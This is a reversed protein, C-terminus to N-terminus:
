RSIATGRKGQRATKIVQRAALAGARGDLGTGPHTGTSCLFLNEIPTLYSAWGLIPRASWLQDLGLEGHFIHGGTLGYTRELDLPTVIQQAVISRDFGPAYRTITATAIDALHAREADWTTDRLCSPAFQVYASVVHQDAPALSRDLISPIALEIWPEDAFSGYKAADFAREIADMDPGLRVWGSLAANREDQDLSSVGVFRPLSSVAYNIKALSGRMRINRIARVFEPALNAPDVLGILTRRPDANSVIWQATLQEGTALVVGTAVGDKVVIHHVEAGVRIEAGARRAASALAESVAGIGGRATWGPAIPHGEGAGLWLLSATSGGSRPGLLSGLTGGAAVTACLPESEFWERAFDAAPMPLWRLLRYADANNLARFKRLTRILDFAGALSLHDASPPPTAAVSRLVGSVAAVSSVFTPYREADATSFRSIERSARATDNWLTLARGDPTLACVRAAPRVIDLGHHELHLERIIGPDIAARHSLTSCRFGTVIESTIASGGIREARELVLPKFGAKALFAATVLGNHGAGIIVVDRM